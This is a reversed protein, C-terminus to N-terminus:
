TLECKTHMSVGDNAQLVVAFIMIYFLINLTVCLQSIHNIGPFHFIFGPLFLRADEAQLGEIILTIICGGDM